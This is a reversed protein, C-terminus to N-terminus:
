GEGYKRHRHAVAPLRPERGGHTHRGDEEKYEYSLRTRALCRWQPFHLSRQLVEVHFRIHRVVILFLFVVMQHLHRCLLALLLSQRFIRLAWYMMFNKDDVAGNLFEKARELVIRVANEHEDVFQVFEHGIEVAVALARVLCVPNLEEIAVLHLVLALGVAVIHVDETGVHRDDTACLWPQEGLHESAVLLHATKGAAEEFDEGVDCM